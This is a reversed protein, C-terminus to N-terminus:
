GSRGEASSSATSAPLHSSSTPQQQQTSSPLSSSSTSLQEQENDPPMAAALRVDEDLLALGELESSAATTTVISPSSSSVTSAAGSVRQRKTTASPPQPQENTTSATLLSNSSLPRKRLRVKFAWALGRMEDFPGEALLVVHYFTDNKWGEPPIVSTRVLGSAQEMPTPTRLHSSNGFLSPGDVNKMCVEKWGGNALGACQGWRSDHRPSQLFEVVTLRGATLYTHAYALHRTHRFKQADFEVVFPTFRLSQVVFPRCRLVPASATSTKSDDYLVAVSPSRILGHALMAGGGPPGSGQNDKVLIVDRERVGLEGLSKTPDAKALILTDRQLLLLIRCLPVGGAFLEQIVEKLDEVTWELEASIVRAADESSTNSSAMDWGSFWRVELRM